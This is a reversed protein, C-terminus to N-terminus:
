NLYFEKKKPLEISYYGPKRITNQVDLFFFDYDVEVVSVTHPVLFVNAPYHHTTIPIFEDRHILAHATVNSQNNIMGQLHSQISDEDMSAALSMGYIGDLTNLIKDEHINLRDRYQGIMSIFHKHYYGAYYLEGRHEIIAYPVFWSIDCMVKNSLLADARTQFIEHLKDLRDQNMDKFMNLVTDVRVPKIYQLTLYKDTSSIFFRSQQRGLVNDPSNRLYTFNVFQLLVASDVEKFSSVLSDYKVTFEKVWAYPEMRDDPDRTSFYASAGVNGHVIAELTYSDILEKEKERIKKMINEPIQSDSLLGDVVDKVAMWESTSVYDEKLVFPKFQFKKDLIAMTQMALQEAKNGSLDPQRDLLYQNIAKYVFDRSEIMTAKYNLALQYEKHYALCSVNFVPLYSIAWDRLETYVDNDSNLSFLKFDCLLLDEDLGFAKLNLITENHTDVGNICKWPLVIAGDTYQLVFKTQVAEGHLIADFLKQYEQAHSTEFRVESLELRSALDFFIYQRNKVPPLIPKRQECVSQVMKIKPHHTRLNELLMSLWDQLLFANGDMRLPALTKLTGHQSSLQLETSFRPKAGKFTLYEPMFVGKCGLMLYYEALDPFGEVSRYSLVLSHRDRDVSQPVHQFQNWTMSTLDTSDVQALPTVSDLCLLNPCIQVTEKDAKKQIHLGFEDVKDKFIRYELFQSEVDSHINGSYIAQLQEFYFLRTRCSSIVRATNVDSWSYRMVRYKNNHLDHEILAENLKIQHEQILADLTCIFKYHGDLMTETLYFPLKFDSSESLTILVSQIYTNGKLGVVGTVLYYKGDNPNIHQYIDGVSLINLKNM